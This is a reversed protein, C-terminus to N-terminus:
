RKRKKTDQQTSTQQEQQSPQPQSAARTKRMEDMESEMNFEQDINESLQKWMNYDLKIVSHHINARGDAFDKEEPPRSAPVTLTGNEDPELAVHGDKLLFSLYFVNEITHAYSNKDVVTDLFDVKKKKNIYSRMVQVRTSTTESEQTATSELKEAQVTKGIPEDDKTEEAKKRQRVKKELELPGYMFDFQPNTKYLKSLERGLKTWADTNNDGDEEEAEGLKVKVRNIFGLTDFTNLSVKLKQAKELSYQSTLNLLESDLAAERPTDVATYIKDSAHIVSLLSDSESILDDKNGQVRQILTRYDKRIKRRETETKEPLRQSM